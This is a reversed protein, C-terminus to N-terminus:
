LTVILKLQCVPHAFGFQTIISNVCVLFQGKRHVGDACCNFTQGLHKVQLYWKLKDNGLFITYQTIENMHHGHHFKIYLTKKANSFSEM